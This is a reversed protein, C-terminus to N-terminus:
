LIKAIRFFINGFMAMLAKRFHEVPMKRSLQVTDGTNAAFDQVHLEAKNPGLTTLPLHFM